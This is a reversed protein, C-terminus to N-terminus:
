VRNECKRNDLMMADKLDGLGLKMHGHCSSCVREYSHISSGFVFSFRVDGYERLGKGVLSLAEGDGDGVGIRLIGDHEGLWVIVGSGSQYLCRDIDKKEKEVDGGGFSYAKPYKKIHNEKNFIFM